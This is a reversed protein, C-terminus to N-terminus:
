KKLTVWPKLPTIMGLSFAKDFLMVIRSIAASVLHGFFFSDFRDRAVFIYFALVGESAIQL